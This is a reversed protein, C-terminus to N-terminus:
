HCILRRLNNLALDIRTSSSYHYQNVWLQSSLLTWAKRLHILRFTFAVPTEIWYSRHRLETQIWYSRHRQGPSWSYHWLSEERYIRVLKSIQNNCDFRKPQKVRWDPKSIQWYNEQFKLRFGKNLGYPNITRM